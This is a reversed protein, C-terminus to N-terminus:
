IRYDRALARAIRRADNEDSVFHIAGTFTEWIEARITASLSESFIPKNYVVVVTVVHEDLEDYFNIVRQTGTDDIVWKNM